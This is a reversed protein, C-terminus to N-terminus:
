EKTVEFLCDDAIFGRKEITEADAIDRCKYENVKWGANEIIEATDCGFLRVHDEQGYNEFRNEPTIISSDEYTKIEWCIPVTVIAKGNKKLVRKLESLAKPLDVIHELVHNCIIYDFTDNAFQLNTIDAVADARGLEIDASICSCAKNEKLKKTLCEEPAFHLVSCTNKFIDTYEKLFHYVYRTRDISGCIPCVGKRRGGGVIRKNMFSLDLGTERWALNRSGCMNCEFPAAINVFEDISVIKGCQIGLNVLQEKIEEFYMETTTVVVYDLVCNVLQQPMVFRRDTSMDCDVNSDSIALLEIKQQKLVDIMHGLFAKGKNGLGYVVIKM